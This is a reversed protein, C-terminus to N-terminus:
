IVICLVNSFCVHKCSEFISYLHYHHAIYVSWMGAMGGAVKLNITFSTRLDGRAIVTINEPYKDSEVALLSDIEFEVEM